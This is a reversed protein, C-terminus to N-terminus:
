PHTHDLVSHMGDAVTAHDYFVVRQLMRVQTQLGRIEADSDRLDRRVLQRFSHIEDFAIEIQERSQADAQGCCGSCMAVVVFLVIAVGFALVAYRGDLTRGTRANM